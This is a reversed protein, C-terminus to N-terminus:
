FYLYILYHQTGAIGNPTSSNSQIPSFSATTSTLKVAASSGSSSGKFWDLSMMSGAPVTVVGEIGATNATPVFWSQAGPLAGINHTITTDATTSVAFTGKLYIQPSTNSSSTSFFATPSIGIPTVTGQNQKAILAIRYHITKSSSTGHVNDYWNLAVLTLVGGSTVYARLTTTQLVPAGPTTLNPIYVGLDNWTTGGDTSFQGLFYCSTGFRTDFTATDTAVSGVGAAAVTMSSSTFGIIKDTEFYSTYSVRGLVTSELLNDAVSM